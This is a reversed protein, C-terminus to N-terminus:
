HPLEKAHKGDLLVSLEGSVCYHKKYLLDGYNPPFSTDCKKCYTWGEKRGKPLKITM